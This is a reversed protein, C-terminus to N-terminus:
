TTLSGTQSLQENSGGDVKYAACSANRKPCSMTYLTNLLPKTALTCHAKGYKIIVM